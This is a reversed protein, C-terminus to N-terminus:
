HRFAMLKLHRTAMWPLQQSRSPPLVTSHPTLSMHISYSLAGSLATHVSLPPGLSLKAREATDTVSPEGEKVQTGPRERVTRVAPEKTESGWSHGTVM